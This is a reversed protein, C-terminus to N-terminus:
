NIPQSHPTQQAKQMNQIQELKHIADRKYEETAKACTGVISRSSHGLMRAVFLSSVGGSM